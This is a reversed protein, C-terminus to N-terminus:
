SGESAVVLTRRIVLSGPCLQDRVVAFPVLYLDGRLVEDVVDVGEESSDM